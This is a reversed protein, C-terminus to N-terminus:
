FGQCFSGLWYVTRLCRTVGGLSLCHAPSTRLVRTLSLGGGVGLGGDGSYVSMQAQNMDM